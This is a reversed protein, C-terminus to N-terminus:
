FEYPVLYTKEATGVQVCFLLLCARGDDRKYNELRLLVMSLNSVLFFLFYAVDTFHNTWMKQYYEDTRIYSLILWWHKLLMAQENSSFFILFRMEIELLISRTRMGLLFIGADFGKWDM